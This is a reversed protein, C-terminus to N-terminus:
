LKVVKTRCKTDWGDQLGGFQETAITLVDNLSTEELDFSDSTGKKVHEFFANKSSKEGYHEKLRVLFDNHSRDGRYDPRKDPLTLYEM